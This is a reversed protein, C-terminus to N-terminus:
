DGAAHGLSDNINKFRDLDLFLLAFALKRDRCAREVAHDLRDHFLARNPLGTLSDHFADYTLQEEAKRRATIDDANIVLGAVAPEDLLNRITACLLRWLGDRHRHRMEITEMSPVDDPRYGLMREIAPSAYRV